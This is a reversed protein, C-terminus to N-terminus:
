KDALGNKEWFCIFLSIMGVVLTVVASVVSTVALFVSNVVGGVGNLLVEIAQLFKEKLVAQNWTVNKDLIDIYEALDTNDKLAIYISELAAPGKQILEKICNLLEPLVLNFILFIIGILSLFALIMCIMRKQNIIVQFKCKTIYHREYFSMIINVLYAIVAGMILPAAANLALFILGTLNDWYRIALYLVFLCATFVAYKKYEQKM